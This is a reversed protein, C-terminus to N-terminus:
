MLLHAQRHGSHIFAALQRSVAQQAVARPPTWGPPRRQRWSGRGEQLRRKDGVTLCTVFPRKSRLGCCECVVDLLIYLRRDCGRSISRESYMVTM